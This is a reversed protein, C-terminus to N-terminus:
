KPTNRNSEQKRIIDELKSETMRRYYYSVGYKAEEDSYYREWGKAPAWRKCVYAIFPHYYKHWEAQLTKSGCFERQRMGIIRAAHYAQTFEPFQRDVLFSRSNIGMENGRRGNECVRICLLLKYDVLYTESAHKLAETFTSPRDKPTADPIDLLVTMADPARLVGLRYGAHVSVLAIAAIVVAYWNPRAKLWWWAYRVKGKMRDWLNPDNM